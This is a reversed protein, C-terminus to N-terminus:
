PRKGPGAGPRAGPGAGPRSGPGGGFASMMKTQMAAKAEAATKYKGGSIEGSLENMAKSVSTFFPTMQTMMQKSAAPDKGVASMDVKWQGGIKKMTMPQGKSNPMALTATDGKITETAKSVDGVNVNQGKTLAAGEKGFKKTAATQLNKVAKAMIAMADLFKSPDPTTIAVSKAKAADGNEIAKAFTSAAGKPTNGSQAYVASMMSTLAIACCATRTVIRGFQM